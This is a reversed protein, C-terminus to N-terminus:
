VCAADPEAEIACLLVVWANLEISQARAHPQQEAVLVAWGHRNTGIRKDDLHAIVVGADSVPEVICAPLAHRM